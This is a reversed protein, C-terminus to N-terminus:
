SLGLTTLTPPYSSYSLSNGLSSRCSSALIYLAFKILMSYRKKEFDAGAPKDFVTCVKPFIERVLVGRIIKM